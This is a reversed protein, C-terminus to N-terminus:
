WIKWWAKDELQPPSDDKGHTPKLPVYRDSSFIQNPQRSSRGMTPSIVCDELRSGKDLLQQIVNVEASWRALCMFEADQGREKMWQVAVDYAAQFILQESLTVPCQQETDMQIWIFEPSLTVVKDSLYVRGFAIPIFSILDEAHIERVGRGMLFEEIEEEEQISQDVFVEITLNVLKLALDYNVTQCKQYQILCVLWDQEYLACAYDPQLQIAKEYSAISEEYQGLKRLVNGHNYWALHNDPTIELARQFCVLAEQLRGLYDCLLAGRNLWINEYHPDLRVPHCRLSCHLCLM